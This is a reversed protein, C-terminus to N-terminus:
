GTQSWRISDRDVAMATPSSFIWFYCYQTSRYRVVTKDRWKQM